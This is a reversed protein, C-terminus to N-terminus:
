RLLLYIGFIISLKLFILFLIFDTFGGSKVAGKIRAPLPFLWAVGQHNFSDLLLHSLYGILIASGYIQLNLLYMVMYLVLPVLMSHFVGRHGALLKVLYSIPKIKKGFTSDPHDIDPLFSALVVLSFFIASETMGLELFFTSTLGILISFTLHTRGKM